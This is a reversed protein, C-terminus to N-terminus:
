CRVQLTHKDLVHVHGVQSRVNEFEVSQPGAGIGADDMTNM